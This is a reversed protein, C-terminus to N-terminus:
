PTWENQNKLSSCTCHSENKISLVHLPLSFKITGLAQVTWESSPVTLKEETHMQSSAPFLCREDFRGTFIPGIPDNLTEM